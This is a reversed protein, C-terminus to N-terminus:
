KVIKLTRIKPFLEGVEVGLSQAICILNLAAVNREGRKVGGYYARDLEAEEAFGEQSFRKKERLERIKQGMAVLHPHKKM